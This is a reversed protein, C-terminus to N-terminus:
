GYIKSWIFWILAIQFIFIMPIGLLFKLHKTKHRILQMTIYMGISGGLISILMLTREKVRWSHKVACLKDYCTIIIGIINIVFVYIIILQIVINM